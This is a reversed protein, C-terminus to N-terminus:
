HLEHETLNAFILESFTRAHKTRQLATSCRDLAANALHEMVLLSRGGRSADGPRAYFGDAASVVGM